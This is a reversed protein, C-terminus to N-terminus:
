ICYMSYVSSLSVISTIAARLKRRANFLKLKQLTKDLDTDMSSADATLWPHQLAEDATIRQEPDVTLMRRILDQQACHTTCMAARVHTSICDILVTISLSYLLLQLLAVTARM